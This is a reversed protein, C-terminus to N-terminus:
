WVRRTMGLNMGPRGCCPWKGNEATFKESITFKLDMDQSGPQFDPDEYHALDYLIGEISKYRSSPEKELLQMVIKSLGDPLQPNM